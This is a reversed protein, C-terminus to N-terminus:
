WRNQLTLRSTLLTSLTRCYITWCPKHLKSISRTKRLVRINSLKDSSWFGRSQLSRVTKLLVHLSQFGRVFTPDGFKFSFINVYSWSVCHQRYASPRSWRVSHRFLLNIWWVNAKWSRHIATFWQACCRMLSPMVVIIVVEKCQIGWGENRALFSSDGNNKLYRATDQISLLHSPSTFSIVITPVIKHLSQCSKFSDLTLFLVQFSDSTFSFDRFDIFKSSTSSKQILLRSSRSFVATGKATATGFFCPNETLDMFGRHFPSAEGFGNIKPVNWFRHSAEYTELHKMIRFNQLIWNWFYM